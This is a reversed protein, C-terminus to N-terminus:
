AIGPGDDGGETTTSAALHPPLEPERDILDAILHDFPEGHAAADVARIADGILAAEQPDLIRIASGLHVLIHTGPGVPGTLALNVQENRGSGECRASLGDSEHVIMPVGFCM